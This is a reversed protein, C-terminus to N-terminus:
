KIPLANKRAVVHDPVFLIEDRRLILAHLHPELLYIPNVITKLFHLHV